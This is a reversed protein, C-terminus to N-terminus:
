VEQFTGGAGYFTLEHPGPGIGAMVHLSLGLGFLMPRPPDIRFAFDQGGILALDAQTQILIEGDYVDIRDVITEDSSTCFRVRVDTLMLNLGNMASSTPVAAHLWCESGALLAVVTGVGTHRIASTNEPFEITVNSGHIFHTVIERPTVAPTSASGRVGVISGLALGPLTHGLFTRRRM